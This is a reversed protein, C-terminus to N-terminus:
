KNKLIKDLKEYMRYYRKENGKAVEFASSIYHDHADCESEIVFADIDGCYIGILEEKSLMDYICWATLKVPLKGGLVHDIIYKFTVGTYYEADYEEYDYGSLRRRSDGDLIPLYGESGNFYLALKAKIKQIIKLKDKM